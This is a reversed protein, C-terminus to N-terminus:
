PEESCLALGLERLQDTDVASPAETLLCSASATKPYAIVDRLSTAGALLMVIRDLGFALGGHPPAGHRLARLLFGFKAEAEESGIGLREFLASQIARDHIRISGGGLEFGNLVLDYAQARVEGPASQLKAVDQPHPSTFPHHMAVWRQAEEDWDLLPFDTIWVFRWADNDVLGLSEGAHKRLDALAACVTSVKDAVWLLLDGEGAGMHTQWRLTEDASFFKAVPGQWGEASVKAWALGKAGRAAALSACADIQKRSWSGAGPLRLGRVAMGAEQAASSFVSFDADAALATCDVIELGFRLDPRDIGYRLMAEAYGMRPFPLPLEVGRQERWLRAILRECLDFLLEPTAFSVELDIQTFEPQRDARLDEDRFCRAIQYYRDYGAVMFLQKFLQPSQPLAYFEGPHVRSPVLYDRAGEPTSKTLIPTELELFGEDVLFSRVSHTVEARMVINRQLPRRRLDLFRWALRLDENADVDDRIPFKPVDATNLVDFATAEVEVEGTPLQLNSNTGRHRVVGRVAVVWEPRLIGSADVLTADNEFRVQTTGYRDRLDIFRFAGMDRHVAVWGTLTVEQGVHHARLEGCTHSRNMM